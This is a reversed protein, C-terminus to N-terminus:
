LLKKDFKKHCSVCLSIWTDLDKTYKGDTNAWHLRVGNKGCSQCIQPKGKNRAIYKHLVRYTVSDGRWSWHNKGSLKKRQSDTWRLGTHWERIKEISEQTHKLGLHSKSMKERTERTHKIGKNWAKQGKVFVM